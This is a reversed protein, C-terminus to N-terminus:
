LKAPGTGHYSFDFRGYLSPLGRRWSDRLYDWSAEPVQLRVLHEEDRMIRDVLVTTMAELETTPAEIAAEIEALTFAYYASEDWYTDGNPSHFTFGLEGARERWNSREAITIRQM